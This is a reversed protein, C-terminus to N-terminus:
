HTSTTYGNFCPNFCKVYTSCLRQREATSTTYGNFCPNFSFKVVPAPVVAVTSTTYGNFCPNFGKGTM